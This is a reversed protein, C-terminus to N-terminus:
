YLDRYGLRYGGVWSAFRSFESPVLRIIKRSAALSFFDVLMDDAGTHRLQTSDFVASANTFVQYGINELRESWVELSNLNDAVVFIKKTKYKKNCKEINDVLVNGIFDAGKSYRSSEEADTARIHVGLFSDDVGIDRVRDSVASNRPRLLKMGKLGFRKLHTGSGSYHNVLLTKDPFPLEQDIFDIGDVALLDVMKHPFHFSQSKQDAVKEYDNYYIKDTRHYKALFIALAMGRLRDGFGSRGTEHLAIGSCNFKPLLWRGEDIIKMMGKM